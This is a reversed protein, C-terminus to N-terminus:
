GHCVGEIMTTELWLRSNLDALCLSDEVCDCRAQLELQYGTTSGM